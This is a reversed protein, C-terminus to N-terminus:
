FIVPQITVFLWQQILKQLYLTLFLTFFFDAGGCCMFCGKKRM